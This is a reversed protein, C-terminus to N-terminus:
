CVILRGERDRRLVMPPVETIANGQLLYLDGVYGPGGSIFNFKAGYVIEPNATTTPWRNWSHTTELLQHSFIVIAEATATSKKLPRKMKVWARLAM